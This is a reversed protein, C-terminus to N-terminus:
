WLWGPGGNNAVPFKSWRSHSSAFPGSWTSHYVTQGKHYADGSEFFVKVGGREIVYSCTGHKRPVCIGIDTVIWAENKANSVYYAGSQSGFTFLLLHVFAFMGLSGAIFCTLVIKLTKM